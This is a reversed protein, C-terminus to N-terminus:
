FQIENTFVSRIRIWQMHVFICKVGDFGDPFYKNQSSPTKLEPIVPVTPNWYGGTSNHIDSHLIWFSFSVVIQQFRKLGDFSIFYSYSGNDRISKVSIWWCWYVSQYHQSDDLWDFNLLQNNSWVFIFVFLASFM